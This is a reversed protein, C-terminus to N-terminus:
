ARDQPQILDAVAGPRHVADERRAGHRDVAGNAILALVGAARGASSATSVRCGACAEVAGSARGPNAGGPGCGAAIRDTTAAPCTAVADDDAGVVNNDVGASQDGRFTTCTSGRGGAVSTTPATTTAAIDTQDILRQAIAPRDRRRTPSAARLGPGTHSAAGTGGARDQLERHLLEHGAVGD